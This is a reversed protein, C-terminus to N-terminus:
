DTPPYPLIMQRNPGGIVSASQAPVPLAFTVTAKDTGGPGGTGGGIGEGVPSYCASLIIVAALTCILAARIQLLKHIIIM